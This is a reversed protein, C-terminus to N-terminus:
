ALPKEYRGAPAGDEYYDPVTEFLRYGAREYLRRAAANDARVELRLRDCGQRAAEAELAALLRRAVGRRGADPRVAISSLRGIRSGSRRHLLAYGLVGDAEAVLLTATPSRIQHRFGRRDM